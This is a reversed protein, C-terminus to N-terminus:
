WSDMTVFAYNRDYSSSPIDFEEINGFNTLKKKIAEWLDNRHERNRLGDIVVFLKREESEAMKNQDFPVLFIKWKLEKQCSINLADLLLYYTSPCALIKPAVQRM